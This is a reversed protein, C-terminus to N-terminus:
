ILADLLMLDEFTRVDLGTIEAIQKLQYTMSNRHMYLHEACLSANGNFQRYAHIIKVHLDSLDAVNCYEKISDITNHNATAEQYLTYTMSAIGEVHPSPFSNYLEYASPWTVDSFYNQSYMLSLSCSLRTDFDNQIAQLLESLEHYILPFRHKDDLLQYAACYSKDDKIENTTQFFDEFILLIDDSIPISAQFICYRYFM